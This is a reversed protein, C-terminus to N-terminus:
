ISVGIIEDILGEELAQEATLFYDKQLRRNWYSIPRGTRNQFIKYARFRDIKNFEILAEVDRTNGDASLSGDHLMFRSFPYAQRVTAAQLIIMAMSSAQGIVQITVPSRSAKILDFIGYGSDVDGGGSNMVITIPDNSILNLVHLNKSLKSLTKASIGPSDEDDDPEQDLKITRSSIHIGREHFIEIEELVKKSM